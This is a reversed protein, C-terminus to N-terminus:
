ALSHLTAVPAESSAAKDLSDLAARTARVTAAVEVDSGCNLSRINLVGVRLLLCIEV